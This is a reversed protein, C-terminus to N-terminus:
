GECGKEFWDIAREYDEPTDIERTRIPFAQLPMITNLVDYVHSSHDGFRETRIKVIGSWQQNGATKSLRLVLDNEVTALIPEASTIPSVGLCEQEAALFAAFDDPNALTDGDLSVLYERAGTLAKRLSDAVGTTEYDHNFAYMIGTHHYANVIQILREAQFGVVIRIDDFDHLQELLRIILPKGCIDVLAKTTGIGLRTGMGACCIVVTTNQPQFPKM